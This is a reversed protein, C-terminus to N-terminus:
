PENDQQIAQREALAYPDPGDDPTDSEPLAPGWRLAALERWLTESGFRAAWWLRLNIGGRAADTWDNFPEPPRIRCARAPWIAAAKDGPPDADLALFWPAASLMTELIDPAPRSEGTGGLTVVAALDRLEQTLLLRDFVGEVNLLPWGPRVAEPGPYLAPRDRFAEAYKPETGKPQRIQVKALREGDFWPIVVGRARFCRDGDRTPIMVGSTWGLRAARITEDTLCRSRLYDLAQRGEPKWLRDAAETVLASAEDLPLGSSREPPKSAPKAPKSATPSAPPQPRPNSPTTMRTPAVIGSLEAAIRKAQPFDVREHQKVLDIADGRAGCSWCRWTRRDPDVQLSPKHDDHFPCLWLLRRGQRKAAPGLLATVVRALDVRDKIDKWEIREGPVTVPWTTVSTKIAM